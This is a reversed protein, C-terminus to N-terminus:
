CGTKAETPDPSGDPKTRGALLPEPPVDPLPMWHTVENPQFWGSGSNFIGTQELHDADGDFSGCEDVWADGEPNWYGIHVTPGRQEMKGEPSMCMSPAALLLIRSGDKAASDIPRWM